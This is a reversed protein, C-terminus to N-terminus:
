KDLIFRATYQDTVLVNAYEGKLAAHISEIKHSGGAVLISYDKKKLEELEIGLTREDLSQSCVHGDKDFFRSSIDGVATSYLMGADEESFYGLNFLLSDSKIQGCTFLAINARKGMDIVRKIHRDAMIAEKVVVNDVIAPLPLYHPSANFAKGFLYLIESVYTNKESLSIGGKLQVVQVNNVQKKKLEVAVHYITTGWTVGIIDDDQVISDLYEAAKLGITTKIIHDEYQGVSAVVAKKLGYKQELEAELDTLRDAKECIKIQVIGERKATQLMRSVTPRSVGLQKAIENQTYDLLYYLKAAQIVKDNKDM